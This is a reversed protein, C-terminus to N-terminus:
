FFDGFNLPVRLSWFKNATSSGMEYRDNKVLGNQYFCKIKTVTLARECHGFNQDTEFKLIKPSVTVLIFCIRLNESSHLFLEFSQDLDLFGLTKVLTNFFTLMKTVIVLIPSM